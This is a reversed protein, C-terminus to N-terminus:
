PHFIRPLSAPRKRAAVALQRLVEPLFGDVPIDSRMTRLWPRPLGFSVLTQSVEVLDARRILEVEAGRGWQPTLEHHREVADGCLRLRDGTWGLEALLEQALVRGDSVYAQRTAAGPYLGADHLLSACVVLERDIARAGRRALEETILAVRVSHREIPGNPSGVLERLRALCAKEADSAVLDDATTPIEHTASM